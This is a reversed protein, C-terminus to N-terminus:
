ATRASRKADTKIVKRVERVKRSANEAVGRSRTLNEAAASVAAIWRSQPPIRRLSINRIGAFYGSAPSCGPTTKPQTPQTQVIRPTKNATVNAESVENGGKM